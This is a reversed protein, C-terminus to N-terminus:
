GGASQILEPGENRVHNVLPRVPHAVLLDDPCPALVPVVAQPETLSPDLWGDMGARDLLVPMRHHIPAMFRNPPCTIITHSTFTEGGAPDQWATWLGAFALPAGDARSIYLPVKGQGTRQWEYFGSAPIICRRRGVLQRFAPRELLTEARANFLKAGIRRENAWSPILGWRSPVLRRGEAQPRIILDLQTPAINFRPVVRTESFEAVEFLERIGSDDVRVIRGCM